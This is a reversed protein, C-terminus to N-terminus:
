MAIVSGLTHDSILLPKKGPELQWGLTKLNHPPM